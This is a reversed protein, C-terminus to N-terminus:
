PLPPHGRAAQRQAWERSLRYAEEEAPIHLYALRHARYRVLNCLYASLYRIAFPLRGLEAFQRVHVLEHAILTSSGDTPEDRRLLVVRGSTLGQAGPPLVPVRVVVARHAIAAPVLDYSAVEEASLRRLRRGRRAGAGSVRV